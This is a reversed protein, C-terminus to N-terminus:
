VRGKKRDIEVGGGLRELSKQLSKILDFDSSFNESLHKNTSIHLFLERVYRM